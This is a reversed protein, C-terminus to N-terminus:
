FVEVKDMRLGTAILDLAVRNDRRMRREDLRTRRAILEMDCDRARMFAIRQVLKSQDATLYRGGWSIAIEMRSVDQRSPMVRARNHAEQREEKLEIDSQQRANEDFREITTAPWFGKGTNPKKFPMLALTKFAEVLRLGVHPGIWVEPIYEPPPGDNEVPNLKVPQQAALERLREATWAQRLKGRKSLAM